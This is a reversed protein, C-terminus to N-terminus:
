RQKNTPEQQKPDFDMWRRRYLNAAPVLIPLLLALMWWNLGATELGGFAWVAWPVSTLLAIYPAAMLKWYFTTPYRWPTFYCICFVAIGFLVLGTIGAAHKGQFLFMVALIAIWIFGGLWGVTWGIKEGQRGTMGMDKRRGQGIRDIQEEGV